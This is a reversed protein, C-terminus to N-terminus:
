TLYNFFVLPEKCVGLLRCKALDVDESAKRSLVLTTTEQIQRSPDLLSMSAVRFGSMHMKPTLFSLSTLLRDPIVPFGFILFLIITQFLIINMRVKSVDQGFVLAMLISTVLALM